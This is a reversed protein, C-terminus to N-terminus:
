KVILRSRVPIFYLVNLNSSKTFKAYSSDSSINIKYTTMAGGPKQFNAEGWVAGGLNKWPQQAFNWPMEYREAGM